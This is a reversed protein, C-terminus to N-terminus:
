LLSVGIPSYKMSGIYHLGQLESKYKRGNQGNGESCIGTPSGFQGATFQGASLVHGDVLFGVLIHATDDTEWQRYTSNYRKDLFIRLRRIWLEYNFLTLAVGFGNPVNAYSIPKGVTRSRVGSQPGTSWSEDIGLDIDCALKRLSDIYSSL